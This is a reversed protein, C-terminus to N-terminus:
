GSRTLPHPIEVIRGIDEDRPAEPLKEREQWRGELEAWQQAIRAGVVRQLANGLTKTGNAPERSALPANRSLFLCNLLNM